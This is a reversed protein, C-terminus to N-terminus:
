AHPKPPKKVRVPSTTKLRMLVAVFAIVYSWIGQAGDPLMEVLGSDDVGQVLALLAVAWVTTGDSVRRLIVVSYSAPNLGARAVM